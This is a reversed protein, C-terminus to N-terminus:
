CLFGTGWYRSLGIGIERAWHLLHWHLEGAGVIASFASVLIVIATTVGVGALAQTGIYPIHGIYMRDVINYLLNVVQAAVAPFAMNVVLPLMRESSLRNEYKNDM